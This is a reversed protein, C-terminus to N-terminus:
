RDRPAGKPPSIVTATAKRVAVATVFVLLGTVAALVPAAILSGLLWEWLRTPAQYVWTERTMERLWRGHRIFYGIEVCAFPVFPPVCLNQIAVALLRNLRFRTAVYIIAVTHLGILPVTGLFVGVAASAGLEGPTAHENLLRRFLKVPHLLVTRDGDRRVLRRHPWPLLLRGILMVHRHAFRLNDLFPRFHSVRTGQPAYTVNVDVSRIALGAWAAKALVEVEFDYRRGRLRLNALHGVPYIRFGSQSDRVPVGTELRMWFDSFRMGFRSARPVGPADMRRAGIVITDPAGALVPFFLPIDRPDHQGDADITLMFEGGHARVYALGTLLAQGKGRNVAHRLVVIDTGGLLGAVDADTSGDDVVVVHRVQERCARAVAGVTGGNNYVPIVCWLRAHM